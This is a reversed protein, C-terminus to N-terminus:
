KSETASADDGALIVRSVVFDIEQVRGTIRREEGFLTKLTISEGDFKMHSIEQMIPQGGEKNLYAKALCM